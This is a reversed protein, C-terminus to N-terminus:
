GMYYYIGPFMVVINLAVPLGHRKHSVDPTLRLMRRPPGNVVISIKTPPGHGSQGGPDALPCSVLVPDSIKFLQKPLGIFLCKTKSQNLDSIIWISVSDNITSQIHLINLEFITLYVSEWDV